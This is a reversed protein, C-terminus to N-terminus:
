QPPLVVDPQELRVVKWTWPWLGEKRWHLKWPQNMSNVRGLVVSSFGM